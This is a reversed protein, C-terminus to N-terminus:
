GWVTSSGRQEQVARRRREGRDPHEWKGDTETQFTNSRILGASHTQLWGPCQMGAGIPRAVTNSSPPLFGLLDLFYFSGPIFSPLTEATAYAELRRSFQALQSFRLPM